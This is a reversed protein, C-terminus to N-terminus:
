EKLNIKNSSLLNIFQGYTYCTNHDRNYSEILQTLESISLNITKHKCQQIKMERRKPKRNKKNSCDPCYQKNSMSHYFKVGCCKCARKYLNNSM